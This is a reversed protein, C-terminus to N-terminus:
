ASYRRWPGFAGRSEDWECYWLHDFLRATQGFRDTTPTILVQLDSDRTTPTYPHQSSLWRSENQPYGRRQYEDSRIGYMWVWREGLRAM